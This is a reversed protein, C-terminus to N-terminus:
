CDDSGVDSELCESDEDMLPQDEKWGRVEMILTLLRPKLQSRKSRRTDRFRRLSSSNFQVTETETAQVNGCIHVEVLWNSRFNLM